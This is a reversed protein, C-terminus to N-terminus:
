ADPRLNSDQRPREVEIANPYDAHHGNACWWLDDLDLRTEEGCRPCLNVWYVGDREHVTPTM